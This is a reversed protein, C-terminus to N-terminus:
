YRDGFPDSPKKEVPKPAPRPPRQPAPKGSSVAPVSDAPAVQPAEARASVAPAETPTTASPVVTSGESPNAGAAPARTSTNVPEQQPLLMQTANSSVPAGSGGPSSLLKAVVAAVGVMGGIAGIWVGPSMRRAPLSPGAGTRGLGAGTVIRGTREASLLGGKPVFPALAEALQAIHRFRRDRDKELCRAVADVL